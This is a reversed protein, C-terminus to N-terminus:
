QMAIGITASVHDIMQQRDFDFHHQLRMATRRACAGLPGRGGIKAKLPTRDAKNDYDHFQPQDDLVIRVCLTPSSKERFQWTASGSPIRLFFCDL